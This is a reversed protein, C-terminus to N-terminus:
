YVRVTFSSSVATSDSYITNKDRASTTITYLGTQTFKYSNVISTTNYAENLWIVSGNPAKVSMAFRYCNIPVTTKLSVTTNVPVPDLLTNRLYLRNFGCNNCIADSGNSATYSSYVHNNGTCGQVVYFTNPRIVKIGGNVGVPYYDGVLVHKRDTTHACFYIGNRNKSDVTTIVIAHQYQAGIGSNYVHMIDGVALPVNSPITQANKDVDYISATMRTDTSNNSANLYDRFYVTHTWAWYISPNAHWITTQSSGSNDMPYARNDISTSSNDGGFGAWICQSAFNQCDGGTPYSDFLNNYYATTGSSAQTTYTYAYAKAHVRTYPYSVSVNAMLMAENSEEADLELIAQGEYPKGKAYMYENIANDANFSTRKYAMDFIDNATVDAVLWEKDNSYLYVVYNTGIYTPEDSNEYYFSIHEFIDVKAYKGNIDINNTVYAVEFNNRFIKQDKRVTKFYDVKEIVFDISAKLDSGESDANVKKFQQNADRLTKEDLPAITNAKVDNDEYMFMNYTCSSLFQETVKLISAKDENSLKINASDNDTNLVAYAPSVVTILMFVALLFTLAKRKM